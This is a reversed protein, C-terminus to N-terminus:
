DTNEAAGHLAKEIEAVQRELERLKRLAEPVRRMGALVRQSQQHPAAPFGSVLAGAPVSKTVGARGAIIAGDGVELHGSFGANAGVTVGDGLTTSGSLGSMGSITCHKGIRCNHGIQCLNDVKTGEGIFTTGMTARDVCTNSGIEVSDGLVVTGVQPIKRREGDVETFGFGDSGIVAGPHLICRAGITVRERVTVNSYIFCGPGIVCDNGIYAGAYIVTDDGITTGSCVRVNADISVRQGITVGPSIIAAPHVNGPPQRREAEVRTLLLAMAARPNSVRVLPTDGEPFDEGVLLAGAGSSAAASWYKKDSVFAIDTPGAEHLANVGTIPVTGPGDVRGDVWQAIDALTADM